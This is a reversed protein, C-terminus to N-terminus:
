IVDGKSEVPVFINAQLGPQWQGDPNPIVARLQILQRGAEIVPSIFSIVASQPQDEWGPIVIKVEGGIKINGTESPYIDAEVWLSQYGELRMLPTGEAVYQGESVQLEAVTGSAPSLYTILPNPKKSSKLTRVQAESQGYLRLKQGSSRL